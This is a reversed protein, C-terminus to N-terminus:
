WYFTEDDSELDSRALISGLTYKMRSAASRCYEESGPTPGAKTKEPDAKLWPIKVTGPSSTVAERLQTIAEDDYGGGLIVAKPTSYNKSGLSSKDSAPTSGSLILPLNRIGDEVSMVFYTVEYDPELESIVISGVKELRGCLVVPIPM